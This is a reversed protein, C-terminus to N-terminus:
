IKSPKEYICSSGSDVWGAGLPCLHYPPGNCSSDYMGVCNNDADCARYAQILTSYTGYDDNDCHKNSVM